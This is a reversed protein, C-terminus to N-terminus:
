PQLPCPPSLQLAEFEKVPAEVVVVRLSKLQEHMPHLTELCAVRVLPGFRGFGHALHPLGLVGFRRKLADAASGLPDGVIPLCQYRLPLDPRAAEHSTPVHVVLVYFVEGLRLAVLIWKLAM